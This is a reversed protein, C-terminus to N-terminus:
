EQYPNPAEGRMYAAWKRQHELYAALFEAHGPVVIEGLGSNGCHSCDGSIGDEWEGNANCHPCPPNRFGCAFMAKQWRSHAAKMEDTMEESPMFPVLCYIGICANLLEQSNMMLDAGILARDGGLMPEQNIVKAM